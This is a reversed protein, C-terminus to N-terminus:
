RHWYRWRDAQGPDAGIQAVRGQNPHSSNGMTARRRRFYHNYHNGRASLSITPPNKQSNDRSVRGAILFRRGATSAEAVGGLAPPSDQVNRM